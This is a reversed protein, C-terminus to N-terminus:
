YKSFPGSQEMLYKSAAKHWYVDDEIKAGTKLTIPFPIRVHDQLNEGVRLNALVEFGLENLHNKPGVGSQM